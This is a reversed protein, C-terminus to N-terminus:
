YAITNAMWQVVAMCRKAFAGGLSGVRVSLLGALQEATETLETTARPDILTQVARWIARKKQQWGQPAVTERSQLEILESVLHM